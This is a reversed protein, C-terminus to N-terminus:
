GNQHRNRQLLENNVRGETEELYVIASLVSDIASEWGYIYTEEIPAPINIKSEVVEYKLTEWMKKYDM